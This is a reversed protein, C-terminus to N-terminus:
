KDFIFANEDMSSKMVDAVGYRGLQHNLSIRGANFRHIEDRIQNCQEWDFKGAIDWIRWLVSQVEAERGAETSASLVSAQGAGETASVAGLNKEKECQRGRAEAALLLADLAKVYDPYVLGANYEHADAWTVVSDWLNDKLTEVDGLPDLSALGPINEKASLAGARVDGHETPPVSGSGIEARVAAIIAQHAAHLAPHLRRIVDPSLTGQRKASAAFVDYLAADYAQFAQEVSLPETEAAHPLPVLSERTTVRERDRVPESVCGVQKPWSLYFTDGHAEHPGHHYEPLCCWYSPETATRPSRAECWKVRIFTGNADQEVTGAMRIESNPRPLTDGHGTDNAHILGAGHNNEGEARGGVTLLAVLEDLGCSCPKAKAVHDYQPPPHVAHFENRHGCEVCYESDCGVNHEVRYRERILIAAERAARIYAEADVHFIASQGERVKEIIRQRIDTLTQTMTMDQGERASNTM